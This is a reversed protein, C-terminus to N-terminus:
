CRYFALRAPVCLPFSSYCNDFVTGRAALADIHPSEVLPHGYARLARAGLQDCMLVVINPRSTM